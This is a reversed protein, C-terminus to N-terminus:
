THPNHPILAPIHSHQPHPNAHRDPEQLPYPQTPIPAVDKQGRSTRDPSPAELQLSFRPPSCRYCHPTHYAFQKHKDSVLTHSHPRARRRAHTHPHTHTHTHTHARTRYHFTITRAATFSCRLRRAGVFACVRTRWCQASEALFVRVCVCVCMCVCVCVCECVCVCVGQRTQVRPRGWRWGAGQGGKPFERTRRRGQMQPTRLPYAYWHSQFFRSGVSLM